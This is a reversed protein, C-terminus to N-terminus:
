NKDETGPGTQDMKAPSIEDEPFKPNNNNTSDIDGLGKEEELERNIEADGLSKLMEVVKNKYGKKVALRIAGSLCDVPQFSDKIDGSDEIDEAEKISLFYKFTKM